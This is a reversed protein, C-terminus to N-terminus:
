PLRARLVAMSCLVRRIPLTLPSDWRGASVSGSTAAVQGLIGLSVGLDWDLYDNPHFAVYLIDVIDSGNTYHLIGCTDRDTSSIPTQVKPLQAVTHNNDVMIQFILDGDANINYAPANTYTGLSVSQDPLLYAFTAPGGLNDSAVHNGVNDFM